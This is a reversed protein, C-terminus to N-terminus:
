RCFTMSGEVVVDKGVALTLSPLAICRRMLRAIPIPMPAAVICELVANLWARLSEGELHRVSDIGVTTWGLARKWWEVKWDLGGCALMSSVAVVTLRLRAVTLRRWYASISGM